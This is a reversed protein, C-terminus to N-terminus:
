PLLGLAALDDSLRARTADTATILPLRAVPTMMGMLHLAMKAPQPNAECFLSDILARLRVQGTAAARTKGARYDRYLACTLAPAVNSVVSIVGKGGVAYMPVCLGDDGSLIPLRDETREILEQVQMLSGSAEKLGAARSHGALSAVTQATMNVGTRGPVNYLVIPLEVADMVATYHAILGPQTPKNYYPVVVLAADVGLEKAARTNAITTATCNTGTGAIVPVRGAAVRIVTSVVHGWEQHTLTSAEGTTGCPVLGDIGAEIQTHVLRELAATDVTREADDCFPTVLATFTGELTLNTM